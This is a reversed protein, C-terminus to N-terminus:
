DWSVDEIDVAMENLLSLMKIKEWEDIEGDEASEYVKLKMDTITDMTVSENTVKVRKTNSTEADDIATLIEKIKKQSKEDIGKKEELKVLSKRIKHLDNLVQKNDTVRFYRAVAMVTTYVISLVFTTTAATAVISAGVVSGGVMAAGALAGGAVLSAIYSIFTIATAAMIHIDQERIKEPEEEALETCKLIDEYYDDVFKKITNGNSDEGPKKNKIAKVKAKFKKLPSLKSEEVVDMFEQFKDEEMEGNYYSELVLELIGEM